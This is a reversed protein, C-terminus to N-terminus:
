KPTFSLCNGKNVDRCFMYKENGTPTEVVGTFYNFGGPVVNVRCRHNYWIESEGTSILNKCDKCATNIKM